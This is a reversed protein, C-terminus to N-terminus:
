SCFCLSILFSHLRRSTKNFTNLLAYKQAAFVIQSKVTSEPSQLKVIPLLFHLAAGSDIHQRYLRYNEGSDILHGFRQLVAPRRGSSHIGQLVATFSYFDRLHYLELVLQDLKICLAMDTASCEEAARCLSNWWKNLAALPHGSGKRIMDVTLDRFLSLATTTLEAALEELGEQETHFLKDLLDTQTDFEKSWIVEPGRYFNQFRVALARLQCHTLAIPNEKLLVAKIPGTIFRTDIGYIKYRGNRVCSCAHKVAGFLFPDANKELVDQLDLYKRLEDLHRRLYYYLSVSLGDYKSELATIIPSSLDQAEELFDKFQLLHIYRQSEHILSWAIEETASDWSSRPKWVWDISDLAGPIEPLRLSFEVLQSLYGPSLSSPKEDTSQVSSLEVECATTAVNLSSRQM